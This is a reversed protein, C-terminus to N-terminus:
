VQKVNKNVMDPDPFLRGTCPDFRKAFSQYFSTEMNVLSFPIRKFDTM